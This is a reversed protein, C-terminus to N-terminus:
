AAALKEWLGALSGAENELWEDFGQKPKRRTPKHTKEQRVDVVLPKAGPCIDHMHRELLLIMARAADDGLVRDKLWLKVVFLTGKRDSVAFDPRIRVALRETQWVAHGHPVLPLHLSSMALWHEALAGYHRRRAPDRQAAVVRQMTLHDSGRGRGAVVAGKFDRVTKKPPWGLM